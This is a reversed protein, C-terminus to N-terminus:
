LVDHYRSRDGAGQVGAHVSQLIVGRGQNTEAVVARGGPLDLRHLQIEVEADIGGFEGRPQQQAAGGLLLLRQPQIAFVQLQQRDRQIALRQRGGSIAMHAAHQFNVAGAVAAQQFGAHPQARRRVGRQLPQVKGARGLRTEQQGLALGLAKAVDRKEGVPGVHLRAVRHGQARVPRAKRHQQRAAIGVAAARQFAASVPRAEDIRMRFGAIQKRQHGAPQLLDAAVVEGGIAVRHHEVDPGLGIGDPAAIVGHIRQHARHAPVLLGIAAVVIQVHEMDHGGVIEVHARHLVLAEVDEVGLVQQGRRVGGGVVFVPMDLRHHRMLIEVVPAAVPHGAAVPKLQRQFLPERYEALLLERSVHVGRRELADLVHGQQAPRLKGLVGARQRMRHAGRLVAFDVIEVGGGDVLFTRFQHAHQGASQAARAKPAAHVAVELAVVATGGRQLIEKGCQAFGIADVQHRVEGPIGLGARRAQARVALVVGRQLGVRERQGLQRGIACRPWPWRQRDRHFQRQEGGIALQQRQSQGALIGGCAGLAHQLHDAGLLAIDKGPDLLRRHRGQQASKGGRHDQLALVAGGLQRQQQAM